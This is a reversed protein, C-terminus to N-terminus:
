RAARRPKPLRVVFGRRSWGFHVRERPSNEYHISILPGGDNLIITICRQRGFRTSNRTRTVQM